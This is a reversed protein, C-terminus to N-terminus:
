SHKTPKRTPNFIKEKALSTWRYAYVVVQCLQSSLLQSSLMFFKVKDNSLESKKM